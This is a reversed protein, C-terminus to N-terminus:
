LQGLPSSSTLQQGFAVVFQNPSIKDTISAMTFGPYLFVSKIM